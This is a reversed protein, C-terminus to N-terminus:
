ANSRLSCRGGSDVRHGFAQVALSLKGLIPDHALNDESKADAEVPVDGAEVIGAKM